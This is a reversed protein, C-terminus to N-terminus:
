GEIRPKRTRLPPRFPIDARQFQITNSYGNEESGAQDPSPQEGTHRVATILYSDNMSAVPYDVLDFKYGPALRASNSQGRCISRLCEDSQAKVNALNTAGDQSDFAGPYDYSELETDGSNASDRTLDLDPSEYNYDRVTHKSTRLSLGMNIEFIFDNDTQTGGQVHFPITTDNIAPHVGPDNSFILESNKSFDFFYFFGNQEALRSIFNLDSERYQVCYTLPPLGSSDSMTWGDAYAGSSDVVDSIIDVASAEQFIRCDFRHSLLALSPVIRLDYVSVNEHVGSFQFRSVIGNIVREYGQSHITFAAKQGIVATPDIDPEAAEVRITFEFLGSLFEHGTFRLVSLQAGVGDVEVLFDAQNARLLDAM